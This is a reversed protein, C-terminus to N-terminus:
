MTLAHCLIATAVSVNLSEANSSSTKAISIKQSIFPEIEKRIGESENGMVLFGKGGFVYNKVNQGNMFAGLITFDSLENAKKLIDILEVYFVNVRALSGMTAQVVKSNYCEVSDNSCIINKIGFWDATRIITGMNGPDRVGDLVLSFTDQWSLEKPSPIKFVAMVDPASSLSSVKAREKESAIFLLDSAVNDVNIIGGEAIILAKLEFGSKLFEEVSKKGEVLFEQFEERYKKQQLSVIHSIKNKSLTQM